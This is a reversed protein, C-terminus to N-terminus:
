DLEVSEMNVIEEKDEEVTSVKIDNDASYSEIAKGVNGNKILQQVMREKEGTDNDDDDDDTEGNCSIGSENLIKTLTEIDMSRLEDTNYCTEKAIDEDIKKIGKSSPVIIDVKKSGIIKDILELRSAKEVFSKSNEGEDELRTLALDKLEDLSMRELEHPKLRVRRSRMRELRGEEFYTNDTGLEWRCFPCTCHKQLWEGVCARHFLHGCPLRAVEENLNHDGFCICCSRNNEDDLDEETICISPLNDIATQSAPPCSDSGTLVQIDTTSGSTTGQYPGGLLSQFIREITVLDLQLQELVAADSSDPDAEMLGRNSRSSRTRSPMNLITLRTNNRRMEGTTSVIHRPLIRRRGVQADEDFEFRFQAQNPSFYLPDSRTQGRNINRETTANRSRGTISSSDFGMHEDVFLVPRNPGRRNIDDEIVGNAGASRSSTCGM